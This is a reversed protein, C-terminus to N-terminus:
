RVPRDPRGTHGIELLRMANQSRSAHVWFAVCETAPPSDFRCGETDMGQGIEYRRPCVDHVQKPAHNDGTDHYCHAFIPYASASYFSALPSSSRLCDPHSQPSVRLAPLRVQAPSPLPVGLGRLPARHSRFLTTYPFLTDTHTSRPPRRIM